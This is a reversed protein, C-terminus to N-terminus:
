NTEVGRRYVVDFAFELVRVGDGAIIDFKLAEHGGDRGGILEIRTTGRDWNTPDLLQAALNETDSGIVEDLAVADAVDEAYFVMLSCVMRMRGKNKFSSPDQVAGGQAELVFSRSPPLPHDEDVWGDGLERFGLRGSFATDHDVATATVIDVIKRRVTPFQSAM